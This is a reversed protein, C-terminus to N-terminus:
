IMLYDSHWVYRDNFENMIFSDGFCEIFLDTFVFVDFYELVLDDLLM